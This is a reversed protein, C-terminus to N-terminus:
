KIQNLLNSLQVQQKMQMILAKQEDIEPLTLGQEPM